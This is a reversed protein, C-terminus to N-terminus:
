ITSAVQAPATRRPGDFITRGSFDVIIHPYREGVFQYKGPGQAGTLRLVHLVDGDALVLIEDDVRAFKPILGIM